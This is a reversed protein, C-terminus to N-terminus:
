RSPPPPWSLGAAAAISAESQSPFGVFISDGWSGGSYCRVKVESYQQLLLVPNYVVGARDKVVLYCRNKLNKLKERGSVGRHHGELSRKLFRGIERAVEHRYAQSYGGAGLVESDEEAGVPVGASASAEQISSPEELTLGGVSSAAVSASLESIRDSQQDVRLTLRRLDERLERVEGRLQSNEAELHRHSM